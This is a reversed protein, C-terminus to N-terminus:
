DKALRRAKELLGILEKLENRTLHGLLKRHLALVPKDLNDLSKLGKATVAVRIVRRDKDCRQREVLGAEELRDILGTIGPVVTVMRAAIDLIPLPRGEGRLIRLINYQQITIGHVRFLRAFCIQLQDTTRILNLHAEQELLEFPKRKKLERALLSDSM